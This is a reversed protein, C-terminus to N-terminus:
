FKRSWTWKRQWKVWSLVMGITDYFVLDPHGKLQEWGIKHNLIYFCQLGFNPFWKVSIVYSLDNARNIRDWFMRSSMTVAKEIVHVYIQFNSEHVKCVGRM